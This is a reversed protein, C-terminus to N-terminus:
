WGRFPSSSWYLHVLFECAYAYWISIAPMPPLATAIPKCKIRPSPEGYLWDVEKTSDYFDYGDCDEVYVGVGAADEPELLVELGRRGNKMQLQRLAAILDEALPAANPPEEKIPEWGVPPSGPPSILFNKEIAPPRLYNEEPISGSHDVLPIPDARYVRLIIEPRITLFLLRRFTTRSLQIQEGTM